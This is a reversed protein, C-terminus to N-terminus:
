QTTPSVVDFTVPLPTHAKFTFTVDISDGVKLAQTRQMFMLHHRKPAFSVSEGSAIDVKDVAHMQAMGGEETSVHMMVKDFAKSSAGTLTVASDSTNHLTFYGAGPLDGPLLRLRADSVNLDAAAASGTSLLLAALSWFLARKLMIM